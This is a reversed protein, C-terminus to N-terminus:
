YWPGKSCDIGYVDRASLIAKAQEDDPDASYAPCLWPGPLVVHVPLVRPAAVPAIERARRPIALLAIYVVFALALGALALAQHVRRARRMRAGFRLVDADPAEPSSRASTRYPPAGAAHSRPM